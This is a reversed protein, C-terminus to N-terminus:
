LEGDHWDPAAWTAIFIAWLCVGIAIFAVTEWIIVKPM